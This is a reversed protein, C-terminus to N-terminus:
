LRCRAPVGGPGNVSIENFFRESRLNHAAADDGDIDLAM